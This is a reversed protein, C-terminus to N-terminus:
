KALLMKRTLRLNNAVLEYIYIGSSVPNGSQNKGSWLVQHFGKDLYGNVLEAVKEGTISYVTLQVNQKSPLGFSITTIPNFPNPFNGYLETTQLILSVTEHIEDKRGSGIEFDDYYDISLENTSTSEKDSNDVAIVKYYAIHPIGTKQRLYISYDVYYNDTTTALLTYNLPVSLPKPGSARWIEFHSFDPEVNELWNLCPNNIFVSVDFFRPVVPSTNEPNVYYMNVTIYNYGIEVIEAGVNDSPLTNPSLSNTLYDPFSWPSIVKVDWFGPFIDGSDGATGPGDKVASNFPHNTNNFGDAQILYYKSGDGSFRGHGWILIGQTPLDPKTNYKNWPVFHNYDYAETGNFNMTSEFNRNEILFYCNPDVDNEIKFVEPDKLDYDASFTIDSTIPVYNIWGKNYRLGPNVPAPASAWKNNTGSVAVPNYNGSGMLDWEGNNWKGHYLDPWGLVHGFEHAHIGIGSFIADTREENYPAYPAFREGMIYESGSAHPHLGNLGSQGNAKKRYTHGAYVIALKITSGTSVDLGAAIAANKAAQRFSYMTGNSYYAKTNPLVVWDPVGNQDIDPNVIYGTLVFEGDSMLSFYDRMSGYVNKGDPCLMNPTLYEWESFFLDNWDETTYEPMNHNVPNRHKVDSFEVLLVKLTWTTSRLEGPDIIDEPDTGCIMLTDVEDALLDSDLIQFLVFFIILTFLLRKM